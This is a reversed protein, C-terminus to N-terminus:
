VQHPHRRAAAHRRASPLPLNGPVLSLLDLACPACSGSQQGPGLMSSGLLLRPWGGWTPLAARRNGSLSLLVPDFCASRGEGRLYVRQRPSVAAVDGEEDFRCLLGPACSTFHVDHVTVPPRRCMEFLVGTPPEDAHPAGRVWCCCCRACRIHTGAPTPLGRLLKNGGELSLAGLEDALDDGSPQLLLSLLPLPLPQTAHNSCCPVRLEGALAQRRAAPTTHHVM